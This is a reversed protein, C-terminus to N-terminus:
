HKHHAANDEGDREQGIDEGGIGEAAMQEVASRLSKNFIERLLTDEVSDSSSANDPSMTQARKEPSPAEEVAENEDTITLSEDVTVQEAGTKEINERSAKTNRAVVVKDQEALLDNTMHSQGEDQGNSLPANNEPEEITGLTEEGENKQIVIENSAVPKAAPVEVAEANAAEVDLETAITNNNAADRTVPVLISSVPEGSTQASAGVSEDIPQEAVPFSNENDQPEYSYWWFAGATLVCVLVFVLLTRLWAASENDDENIQAASRSADRTGSIADKNQYADILPQSEIDMLRAYSRMYGMVFAPPPLKEYNGEELGAIVKEDLNIQDSVDRRSWGLAERRKALVEGPPQLFEVEIESTM